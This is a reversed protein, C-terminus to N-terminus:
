ILYNILLSIFLINFYTDVWLNLAALDNNIFLTESKALQEVILHMCETATSDTSYKFQTFTATLFM